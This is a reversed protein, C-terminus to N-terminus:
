RDDDEVQEVPGVMRGAARDGSACLRAHSRNMSDKRLDYVLLTVAVGFTTHEANCGACEFLQTQPPDDGPPRQGDDSESRRAIGSV